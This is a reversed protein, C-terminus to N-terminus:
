YEEKKLNKRLRSIRKWRNKEELAAKGGQRILQHRIERQLQRYNRFHGADLEGNKLAERVACGPEKDHHCDSFRCNMALRSIDGFADDLGTEDGWVQIERMGPTDIVAGGGPLLILERRTTTHRGRRDSERVEGTVLREEGLLANILASKGVGSPGLFAATSGKGLYQKLADLGTRAIASVAHVPTGCAATQVEAIRAEVDPCLDAKNLLIVPAAGSAYAIALYRETRRLNLGRGGDLGSVLFVTDVNAAVVQEWTRGGDMRGRGGSVQRSFKSKRPLIAQIVAKAEGPLLRVALWDGIAPYEEGGSMFYRLHGSLQATLEGSATLVQCIEKEISVVRGPVAGAINMSQFSDAFFSGWGLEELNVLNDNTL